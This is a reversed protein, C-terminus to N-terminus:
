RVRRTARSREPSGSRRARRLLLRRAERIDREIRDLALAIAEGFKRRRLHPHMESAIADLELQPIRGQILREGAVVAYTGRKPRGPRLHILMVVGDRAGPRSEVDWSEMLGRADDVTEEYSRRKMALHVVVPHGLRQIAHARRELDAVEAPALVGANDYVRRTSDPSASVPATSAPTATAALALAALLALTLSRTSARM